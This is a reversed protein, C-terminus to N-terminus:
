EYKKMITIMKDLNDKSYNIRNRIRSEIEDNYNIDIKINMDSDVLRDELGFSELLDSIRDINPIFTERKGRFCLFNKRFIISFCTMHFSDGLIYSANCILEVFSAPGVNLIRKWSNPIVCKEDTSIYWVEECKKEKKVMEIYELMANTVNGLSYILIYNEPKINIDLEHGWEDASLLFVPDLLIVIELNPVYEELFTKANSERVGIFDFDRIAYAIKKIELSYKEKNEKACMSPSYSFKHLRGACGLKLLMVDPIEGTEPNWLQDSGLMLNHINKDLLYKEVARKTFLLKSCNMKKWVFWDFKLQRILANKQINIHINRMNYLFWNKYYKKLYLYKYNILFVKASYNKELVRELAYAQLTQGCNRDDNFWTFLGINM